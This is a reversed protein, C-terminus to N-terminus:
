VSQTGLIFCIAFTKEDNMFVKNLMRTEIVQEVIKKFFARQASMESISSMKSLQKFDEQIFAVLNDYHLIIFSFLMIFSFNGIGALIANNIQVILTIYGSTTTYDVFPVYFPAPLQKLYITYVAGM